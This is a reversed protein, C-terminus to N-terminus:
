PDPLLARVTEGRPSLRYGVGLSETLGLAKLKRVDTKFALRERGVADALDGARTAPREAIIRLTARTWPGDAGSADMRDLKKVIVALEEPSVAAQERLEIRPDAGGMRFAIRYLTGDKRSLFDRIEGADAAGARRAEEDTIEDLSGLPDVADIALVGVATRLTGGTKVTPRTWRRFALDVEGQEVRRLVALPILM